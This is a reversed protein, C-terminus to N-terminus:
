VHYGRVGSVFQAIWYVQAGIAGAPLLLWVENFLALALVIFCFDARSLERFFYISWQLIGEPMVNESDQTLPDNQQDIDRHDLYIGVCYNITGGAAAMLGLWFWVSQETQLTVGWGLSAFLASHVFWDVFTDYKEGFVSCQNKARAVEGDANDLIYCLVFLTAGVLTAGFTGQLLFWCAGIGLLLSGTTVMNANIPLRILLASVRRSIHRILPFVPRVSINKTM